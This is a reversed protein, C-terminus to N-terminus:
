VGTPARASDSDGREATLVHSSKIEKPVHRLEVLLGLWYVNKRLVFFFSIVDFPTLTIYLFHEPWSRVLSLTTDTIGRM